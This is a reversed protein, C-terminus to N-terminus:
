GKKGKGIQTNSGASICIEEDV